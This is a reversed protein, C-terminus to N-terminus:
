VPVSDRFAQLIQKDKNFVRVPKTSQTFMLCTVSDSKSGRRQEKRNSLSSQRVAESHRSNITPLFTFYTMKNVNDFLMVMGSNPKDISLQICNKHFDLLYIFYIM